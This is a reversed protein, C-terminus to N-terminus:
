AEINFHKGRLANQYGKNNYTMTNRDRIQMLSAALRRNATLNLEILRGNVSNRKQCEKLKDSLIDKFKQYDSKLRDKESHVKISQDNAQLNILLTSKKENIATLDLAKREKLLQYEENLVVLLQKLIDDQAKLIEILPREAM